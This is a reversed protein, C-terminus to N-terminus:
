HDKRTASKFRRIDGIINVGIEGLNEAQSIWLEKDPVPWAKQHISENDM